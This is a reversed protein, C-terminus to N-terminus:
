EHSFLIAVATPVDGDSSELASELAVDEAFGMRLLEQRASALRTSSPKALNKDPPAAAAAPSPKALPGKVDGGSSAVKQKKTSSPKPSTKGVGLIHDWPTTAAMSPSPEVFNTSAVLPATSAIGGVKWGHHENDCRRDTLSGKVSSSYGVKEVAQMSDSTGATQEVAKPVVPKSFFSAVSRQQQSVLKVPAATDSEQYDLRSMKKTTAHWQLESTAIRSSLAALDGDIGPDLWEKLGTADLIVPMRDHLWELEPDVDRTIMTFTDEEHQEHQSEGEAKVRPSYLSAVWLQEDAGHHVYYPQKSKVQKCEDATWEFFGNIPVACRQCARLLPSFVPSSAITESRANFMKWFDPTGKAYAPVLGWRMTVIQPIGNRLAVVAATRGPCLNEIPQYSDQGEWVADPRVNADRQAAARLDAPPLAQRTRGCM